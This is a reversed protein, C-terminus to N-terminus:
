RSRVTAVTSRRASAAEPTLPDASGLVVARIVYPAIVVGSALARYAGALELLTVESAGLATTPYPQLPTTMGLSRATRIVRDIGVQGAIWIAVANRSEALAERVPIPGKFLGDYNSIWKLDDAHGDPVSIPKDPVLTQLTFTRLRFAALYVIPKMASGPQRLADTARNFDSYSAARGQYM